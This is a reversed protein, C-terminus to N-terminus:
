ECGKDVRAEVDKRGVGNIKNVIDTKRNISLYRSQITNFIINRLYVIRAARCCMLSETTTVSVFTYYMFYGLLEILPLFPLLTNTYKVALAEYNQIM